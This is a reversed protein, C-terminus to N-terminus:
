DEEIMGYIDGTEFFEFQNVREMAEEESLYIDSHMLAKIAKRQIDEPLENFHYLRTEIVRSM